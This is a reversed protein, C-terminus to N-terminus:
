QAAVLNKVFDVVGGCASPTHAALFRDPDSQRQLCRPIFGFLNLFLSPM